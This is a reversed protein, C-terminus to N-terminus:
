GDKPSYWSEWEEISQARRPVVVYVYPEPLGKRLAENFASQIAQELSEPRDDLPEVSVVTGHADRAALRTEIRAVRTVISRPM